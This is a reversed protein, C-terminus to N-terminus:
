EALIHYHELKDAVASIVMAMTASIMAVTRAHVDELREVQCVHRFFVAPCQEPKEQALLEMYPSFVTDIFNDCAEPSLGRATLLSTTERLYQAVAISPAHVMLGAVVAAHVFGYWQLCLVREAAQDACHPLGAEKALRLLQTTDTNIDFLIRAAEVGQALSLEKRGSM